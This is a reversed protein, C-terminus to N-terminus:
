DPKFGYCVFGLERAYTEGGEKQPPTDSHLELVLEGHETPLEPLQYWQLKNTLQGQWVVRGAQRIELDRPTIGQLQLQVRVHEQHPWTHLTLRGDQRGWAWHSGLRSEVVYWRHDTELLYNCHWGWRTTLEGPSNPVSWLAVVGNLVSLNGLILWLAGARGRVALVNFALTLPLLVRMAAGPLGEWVAPGLLLLLVGYVAGLRWWLNNWQPRIILFLLQVTLALQVLLSSVALWRNSELELSVWTACWKNVFEVVPWSFNRQGTEPSGVNLRLYVLWVALPLIVLLGRVCARAWDGRKAGAEPLLAVAGLVSTERALVALSLWGVGQGGRGRELQWLAGALLTLAALDTLAFRVSHLTGSAFLLGAWAATTRWEGPPFMRWLGVALIGWFFLNLWAYARVVAVPEGLGVVWAIWGLLMRRARYGLNDIAVPLGPDRLAPSTALQAYYQGDYGGTHREFYIPAHRLVPLMATETRAEVQLLKTFGHYPNWYRGVLWLFFIVLAIRMIRGWRGPRATLKRMWSLMRHLCLNGRAKAIVSRRARAAPRLTSAEGASYKGAEAAKCINDGKGEHRKAQGAPPGVQQDKRQERVHGDVFKIVGAAELSGGHVPDQFQDIRSARNEGRVFKLDPHKILHSDLDFSQGRHFRTWLIGHPPAM